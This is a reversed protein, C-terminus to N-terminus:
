AARYYNVSCTSAIGAGRLDDSEPMRRKNLPCIKGRFREGYPQTATIEVGQSRATLWSNDPHPTIGAVHVSRSAIDIFFLVYHTVLGKITFVEV